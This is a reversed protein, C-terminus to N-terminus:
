ILNDECHMCGLGYTKQLNVAERDKHRFIYVGHARPREVRVQGAQDHYCNARVNNYNSFRNNNSTGSHNYDTCYNNYRPSRSFSCVQRAQCYTFYIGRFWCQSNTRPLYIQSHVSHKGIVDFRPLLSIQM